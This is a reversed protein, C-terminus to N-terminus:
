KVIKFERYNSIKKNSEHIKERCWFVIDQKKPTLTIGCEGKVDVDTVELRFKRIISGGFLFLLIKALDEGVCMRKGIQFPLFGESKLFKGDDGIFRYPNFEAPNNWYKCNFHVSWQLPILMAGKPIVYGRIETEEICGHPIGLPVVPRIRQAEALSAQTLPLFELDDLSVNKREKCVGVIEEYVESQIRPNLAMYLLYWRLTTLTTDLGAGFFDALLHFFQQDDYFCEEPSGKRKQRELLFAQIVNEPQDVSSLLIEEEEILKKYFKHTELKGDILFEMTKRYKPIYRLFPLFNLPGSIGIHKTGEEQLYQLWKWTEDNKSWSKGFTLKNMVSGLSHRLAELPDLRLPQGQNELTTLLDEVENLIMCELNKRKSSNKVAGFQRLCNYVFKRQDKWRDGETCILGYGQMIGHTVYLPARGSMSDKLFANKIDKPDTLVIATLSGLTMSYISGYKDALKTM